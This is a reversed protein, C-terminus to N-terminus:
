QEDRNMAEWLVEAIHRFRRPVGARHCAGSINMMCGADNVVVTEARNDQIHRVKQEVMAASVDHMKLAFAGGFGCCEDHNELPHFHLGDIRQLLDASEGRLGLGRLHCSYHYTADGEWALGLSSWDVDLKKTLFEVFEFTRDALQRARRAADPDDQLLPVYYERIMAACSGSPTVVTECGAFTDLMRLALARAEPHYGNNWFPQGCCTQGAPFAVNCGLRELVNVVAQAAKPYYTDTLCTVFLAVNM